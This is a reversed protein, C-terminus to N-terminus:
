TLVQVVILDHESVHYDLMIGLHQLVISDGNWPCSVEIPLDGVWGEVIRWTEISHLHM